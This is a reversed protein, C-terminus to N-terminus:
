NRTVLCIGQQNLHTLVTELQRREADNRVIVVATNSDPRLAVKFQDFYGLQLVHSLAIGVGTVQVVNPANPETAANELRIKAIGVVYISRSGPRDSSVVVCGSFWLAAALAVILSASHPLWSPCASRPLGAPM